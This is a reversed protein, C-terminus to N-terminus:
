AAGEAIVAGSDKRAQPPVRGRRAAGRRLICSEGRPAEQTVRVAPDVPAM